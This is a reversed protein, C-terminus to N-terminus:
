ARRCTEAYTGSTWVRGSPLPPQLKCPRRFGASNRCHRCRSGCWASAGSRPVCSSDRPRARAAKDASRDMNFIVQIQAGGESASSSMQRAGPIRGLHRELPALVTSATTQASTGPMQAFVAVGPFEISPFAAVGLLLYAWLGALM